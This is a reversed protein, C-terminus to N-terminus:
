STSAFLHPHEREMKERSEWTEGEMSWSRWRVLVMPVVKSRLRREETRLIEVPQLEVNLDEAVEEPNAEIIRDPDPVCKRLMSVHFVDHFNAMEPPM